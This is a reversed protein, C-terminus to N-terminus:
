LLDMNTTKLPVTDNGFKFHEQRLDKRLLDPNATVAAGDALSHAAARSDQTHSQRKTFFTNNITQDCFTKSASLAINSKRNKQQLLYKINANEVQGKVDTQKFDERMVSQTKEEVCGM